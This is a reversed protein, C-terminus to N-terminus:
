GIIKIALRGLAKIIARQRQDISKVEAALQANNPNAIALFANIDAVAQTVQDRLAVLDPEQADRMAKRQAPIADIEAQTMARANNLGADWVMLSNFGDPAYIWQGRFEVEDAALATAYRWSTTGIKLAIM